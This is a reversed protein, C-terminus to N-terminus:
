EASLLQSHKTQTTVEVYLEDGATPNMFALDVRNYKVTAEGKFGKGGDGTVKLSVKLPDAGEKAPVGLVIDGPVFPTTITASNQENILDLIIQENTQLFNSVHKAM